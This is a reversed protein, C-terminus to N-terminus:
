ALGNTGGINHEFSPFFTGARPVALHSLALNFLKDPIPPAKASTPHVNWHLPFVFNSPSLVTFYGPGLGHKHESYMTTRAVTKPVITVGRSLCM